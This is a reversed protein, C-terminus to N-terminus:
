PHGVDVVLRPPGELTLSASTRKRSQAGLVWTSCPRSTAPGSQKWRAIPLEPKLEPRGPMHQRRRHDSREGRAPEQIRSRCSRKSGDIEVELGSPDALIPPQLTSWETDRRGVRSNSRSGISRRTSPQACTWSCRAQGISPTAAVEVTTRGGSFPEDTPSPEGGTTATRTATAGRTTASPSPTAGDDDGCARRCALLVILAALVARYSSCKREDDPPLIAGRKTRQTSM